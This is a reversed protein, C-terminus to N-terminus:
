EEEDGKAYEESTRGWSSAIIRRAREADREPVEIRAGSWSTRTLIWDSTQEQTVYARIGEAELRTRIVHAEMNTLFSAVTVLLEQQRAELEAKYTKEDMVGERDPSFDPDVQGDRSTGCSWCVDFDPEVEIKCNPCTWM